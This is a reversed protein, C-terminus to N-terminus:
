RARRFGQLDDDFEVEVRKGRDHRRAAVPAISACCLPSNEIPVKPSFEPEGASQTSYALACPSYGM